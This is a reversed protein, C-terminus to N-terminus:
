GNKIIENLAEEPKKFSNVYKLFNLTIEPQSGELEQITKGDEVSVAFKQLYYDLRGHKYHQEYPHDLIYKCGDSGFKSDISKGEIIKPCKQNKAKYEKETGDFLVYTTSIHGICSNGISIRQIFNPSIEKWHNYVQEFYPLDETKLLISGCGYEGNKTKRTIHKNLVRIGGDSNIAIKFWNDFKDYYPEYKAYEEDTFQAVRLEVSVPKIKGDVLEKEVHKVNIRLKKAM